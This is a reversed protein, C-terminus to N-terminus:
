GLPDSGRRRGSRPAPHTVGARRRRPQPAEAPADERAFANPTAPAFLWVLFKM